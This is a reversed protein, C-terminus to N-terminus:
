GANAPCKGPIGIRGPATREILRQVDCRSLSPIEIESSHCIAGGFEELGHARAICQDDLMRAGRPRTAKGNRVRLRASASRAAIQPVRSPRMLAGHVRGPAVMSPSGCARRISRCRSRPLRRSSRNMANRDNRSAPPSLRATSTRCRRRNRRTRVRRRPAVGPAIQLEGEAPARARGVAEPLDQVEGGADVIADIQTFSCNSRKSKVCRLRVAPARAARAAAAACKQMPACM